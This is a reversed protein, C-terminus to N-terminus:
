HAVFKVSQGPHLLWCMMCRSCDGPCNAADDPIRDDPQRDDELWAIPRNKPNSMPLGPWASYVVSLNEPLSRFRNFWTYRKTFVLFRTTPHAKCFAVLSKAYEPTPCDGGVHFRFWPVGIAERENFWKALEAFYKAHDKALKTNIKRGEAVNKYMRLTKCDYCQPKTNGPRPQTCGARRDCTVIPLLSLNPIEGLKTNGPSIFM